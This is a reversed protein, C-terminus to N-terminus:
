KFKIGLTLIEHPQITFTTSNNIVQSDFDDSIEEEILNLKRVSQINKPVHLTVRQSNGEVEVLRIVLEESDEAKKLGSMYVGQGELSFFSESEPRTAHTKVLALSPPEFAEIPLNFDDGEMWVGNKWDGPHPYLAYSVNFKGLNPYIDPEGAARMLTIRLDGNHYSHGYKTKNMLAIGMKGDTVDVWKQAPVEQGDKDEPEVGYIRSQSNLWSPADKGNMKGDIPREVVNFPVNCYFRPPKFNLPFLARLMPSDTSDSGTELWHIEMDYQIRPYSKYIYTREIFRSKGWTKVTEICARVPGKEIVKVSEVNEVDETNIIKNIAWSKMGGKKDELYIRLKNLESGDKVYEFNSRKDILSTIGGTQRNFKVIFFDTEFTNDNMLLSNSDKGKQTVDVYYTKYGGAPFHDDIFQVKSTYGPPTPKSFTIQAPYSKGSGDRVLVTALSGASEAQGTKYAPDLFNENGNGGANEKEKDVPKFNQGYYNAGWSAVKVSAPEEHSYVTAEVITKRGAPFLNYAVVPQGLGEQFKVEDAMKLLAADKLEKAMRETETYRAVAQRNAEYIASGPLIDHFQNFVVTEWLNNLETQPYKDGNMWRLANFFESGFLTNECNRNGSKIESVTTYCGEFIFQMEGYHTPLGSMEESTKKFFDSATTFKVAPYDQLQDLEHVMEINKRTPGGGHDGVGTVQMIRHGNKDFKKLEEKLNPTIDGNYTDNAYCLVTSGDPGKWWFKGLYPKCRHFYFYNLGSLKLMQPLQSTHGFNDPLWGVEAKRGFHQQFYRQGFLFSRALAEGSSLNTDGETWMGGVPELRGKKVYEKLREFLPPDVKEVFQYVAAQSQVMTFDPFEDMFAVTQRLNDNAMKMTEFYTWLWNMDMHAHGVVHITDNKEHHITSQKLLNQGNMKIPMCCGIFLIFSISFVSITKM